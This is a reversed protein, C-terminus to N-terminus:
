ATRLRLGGLAAANHVTLKPEVGDLAAQTLYTDDRRIFGADAAPLGLMSSWSVEAAMGAPLTLEVGSLATAIEVKGSERFSGGFDLKVGAAGGEVRMQEFAANALGTAEVAGAGVGLRLLDMRVPNPASFALMARGAGESVSLRTIPLGGLELRTESAGSDITLSFPRSSGLKLELRPPGDVLGFLDSVDTGLRIEAGNVDQSVHLEIRGGPDRYSGEVWRESSGPGIQLLCAVATIRLHPSEAQPFSIDVPTVFTALSV